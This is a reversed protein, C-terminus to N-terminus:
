DYYEVDFYQKAQEKEEQTLKYPEDDYVNGTAMDVKRFDIGLLRAAFVPTPGSLCGIFDDIDKECHYCWIHGALESWNTDKAGCQPCSIEFHIPPQLYHWTRLEKDM